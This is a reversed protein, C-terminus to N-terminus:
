LWGFLICIMIFAWIVSLIGGVVAVFKRYTEKSMRPPASGELDPLIKGDVYVDFYMHHAYRCWVEAEDIPLRFDIDCLLHSAKSTPLEIRRGDLVVIDKRKTCYSLYHVQSQSRIIWRRKKM